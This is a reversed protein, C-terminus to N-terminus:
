LNWPPSNKNLFSDIGGQGEESVRMRAIEGSLYAKTSNKNLDMNQVNDVLRKCFRVANPAGSNVNDCAKKVQLDLEEEGEFHASILGIRLATPANFIEGTMFLHRCNSAGIKSIVFPSIVCPAMGLKVETFGFKANSSAYAIDAAAVLGVGGGIASGNVKAIVPIHCNRIMKMMDFLNRADQENEESTFDKMGKMYNLDAGACFSAGSGTLVISRCDPFGVKLGDFVLSLESILESNLANHIKPRNLLVSLRKRSPDHEVM